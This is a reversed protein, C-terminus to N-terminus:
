VDPHRAATPSGASVCSAHVALSCAVLRNQARQCAFNGSLSRVMNDNGFSDHFERVSMLGTCEEEARVTDDDDPKSFFAKAVNASNNM